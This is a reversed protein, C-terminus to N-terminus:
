DLTYSLFYANSAKYPEIEVEVIRPVWQNEVGLVDFPSFNIANVGYANKNVFKDISHPATFSGIGRFNSGKGRWLVFLYIYSDDNIKTVHVKGDLSCTAFDKSLDFVGVKDGDNKEQISRVAEQLLSIEPVPHQRIIFYALLGFYTLGFLLVLSLLLLLLSRVM